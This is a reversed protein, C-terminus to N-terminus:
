AYIFVLIGYMVLSLPLQIVGKNCIEELKPFFEMCFGVMFLLIPLWLRYQSITDILGASGFFLLTGFIVFIVAFIIEGFLEKKNPTSPAFTIGLVDSLNKIIFQFLVGAGLGSYFCLMCVMPFDGDFYNSYRNIM